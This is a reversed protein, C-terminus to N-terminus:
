AERAGCRPGSTPSPFISKRKPPMREPKGTAKAMPPEATIEVDNELLEDVLKPDQPGRTVFENGNAYRGGPALLDLMRHRSERVMRVDQHVADAAVGGRVVFRPQASPEIEGRM